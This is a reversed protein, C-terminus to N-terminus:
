YKSWNNTGVSSLNAASGDGGAVSGEGAINFIKRLITNPKSMDGDDICVQLLADLESIYEKEGDVEVCANGFCNLTAGAGISVTGESLIIGNFTTDSAISVSAPNEISGDDKYKNLAIVIYKKTSDPSLSVANGIILQYVNKNSDTTPAVWGASTLVQNKYTAGNLPNVWEGPFELTMQVLGTDENEVKKAALKYGVNEDSNTQILTNFMGASSTGSKPETSLGNLLNTFTTAYESLSGPDNAAKYDMVSGNYSICGGKTKLYENNAPLLIKGSGIMDMREYMLRRYYNEGDSNTKTSNFLDRFYNSAATASTFKWYLYYRNETSTEAYRVDAVNVKNSDVSINFGFKDATNTSVSDKLPLCATYESVSLPNHGAKSIMEGPVMYLTQLSRFTISEGMMFKYDSTDDYHGFIKPIDTFATGAIRIDRADSLDVVSDAGNIIVASANANTSETFGIYSPAVKLVEEGDRYFKKTSADYTTEHGPEEVARKMSFSAGDSDITIDDKTFLRSDTTTFKTSTSPVTDSHYGVVIDNAWINANDQNAAVYLGAINSNDAYRDLDLLNNELGAFKIQGNGMLNLKNKVIFYKAQLDGIRGTEATINLDNGSYINGKWYGATPKDTDVPDFATRVTGNVNGNAVVVFKSIDYDFAKSEQMVSATPRTANFTFDTVITSTYGSEDTYSIVVGKLSNEAANYFGNEITVRGGASGLADGSGAEFADCTVKDLNAMLDMSGGMKNNMASKFANEFAVDLDAEADITMTTLVDAYAETAASNALKQLYIKVDDVITETSYFNQSSEEVTQITKRNGVTLRLIVAAIIGVFLMCIIVVVLTAGTNNLMKKRQKM